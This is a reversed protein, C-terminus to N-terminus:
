ELKQSIKWNKEQCKDLLNKWEGRLEIDVDTKRPCVKQYTYGRDPWCSCGSVIVVLWGKEAKFVACADLEYPQSINLDAILGEIKIEPQEQDFYPSFTNM